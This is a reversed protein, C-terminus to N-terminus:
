PTIITRHWYHIRYQLQLTYNYTLDQVPETMRTWAKIKEMQTVAADVIMSDNYATGSVRISM